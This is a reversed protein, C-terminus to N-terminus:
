LRRQGSTTSSESTASAIRFLSGFLYHKKTTIGDVTAKAFIKIGLIAVLSLQGLHLGIGVWMSSADDTAGVGCQRNAWTSSSAPLLVVDPALLSQRHKIGAHIKFPAGLSLKHPQTMSFGSSLERALAAPLRSAELFDPKSTHPSTTRSLHATALHM